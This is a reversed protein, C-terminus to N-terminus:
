DVPRHAAHRDPAHLMVAGNGCMLAADGFAQDLLLLVALKNDVLQLVPQLVLRRGDVRYQVLHEGVLRLDPGADVAADARQRRGVIRDGPEVAAAAVDAVEQAGLELRVAMDAEIQVPLRQEQRCFEGDAQRQHKM